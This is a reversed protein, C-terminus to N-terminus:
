PRVHHEVGELRAKIFDVIVDQQTKSFCAKFATRHANSCSCPIGSIEANNLSILQVGPVNDLFALDEPANFVDEDFAFVLAPLRRAELLYDVQKERLAQWGLPRSHKKGAFAPAFAIVANFEVNARRAVLLSAWGGASHGVLFIQHAPVGERQFRRVLQEVNEARKVVKPEGIRFVHNYAGLKAPTCYAYVVVKLGNVTRGGLEKVVDPTTWSNPFCHDRRLEQESGHNFILLIHREPNPFVIANEQGGQPPHPVFQSHTACGAM